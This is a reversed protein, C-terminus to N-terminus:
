RSRAEEVLDDWPIKYKKCCRKIETVLSDVEATPDNDRQYWLRALELQTDDHEYRRLNCLDTIVIQRFDEADRFRTGHGEPRGRKRGFVVRWVTPENLKHQVWAESPKGAFEIKGPMHQLGRLCYMGEEIIAFVRIPWCQPPAETPPPSSEVLHIGFNGNPNFRGQVRVLRNTVARIGQINQDHEDKIFGQDIIRQLYAERGINMVRDDYTVRCVFHKFVDEVPFKGGSNSM